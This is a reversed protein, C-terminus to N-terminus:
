SSSTVTDSACMVSQMKEILMSYMFPKRIFPFRNRGQLEIVDNSYGSMVLIKAQPEIQLIREAMEIGNVAPMVIDSLVLCIEDKFEMFVELGAASNEAVL